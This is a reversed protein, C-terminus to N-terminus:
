GKAFKNELIEAIKATEKSNRGSTLVLITAKESNPVKLKIVGTQKQPEIELVFEKKRPEYEGSGLIKCVYPNEILKKGFAKVKEQDHHRGGDINRDKNVCEILEVSKEDLYDQLVIEGITSVTVVGDEEEFLYELQSIKDLPVKKQLKEFEEITLVGEEEMRDFITSLVSKLENDLEFPFPPIEILQDSHEYIYALPVKKYSAIQTLLPILAKYGGSINYIEGYGSTEDFLTKILNKYGKKVLSREKEFVNLHRIIHKENEEFRANEYYKALVKAVIVSRITDTAVLFIEVYDEAYKKRLKEITKIEACSNTPDKKVFESLERVLSDVRKKYKEYDKYYGKNMLESGTGERFNEFLSTGITTIIKM